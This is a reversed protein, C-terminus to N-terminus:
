GSWRSRCGTTCRGATAFRRISGSGSSSGCSGTAAWGATRRAGGRSWSWCRCRWWRRMPQLSWGPRSGARAMTTSGFRKRPFAFCGSRAGATPTPSSSSSRSRCSCSRGFGRGAWGGSGSGCASHSSPSRWRCRTIPSASCSRTAM